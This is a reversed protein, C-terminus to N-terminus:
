ASRFIKRFIKRGPKTGQKPDNVDVFNICGNSWHSLLNLLNKVQRIRRPRFPLGVNDPYVTWRDNAATEPKPFTIGIVTGNIKGFGSNEPRWFRNKTDITGGGSTRLQLGDGERWGVSDDFDDISWDGSRTLRPAKEDGSQELGEDDVGCFDRVRGAIGFSFTRSRTRQSSVEIM